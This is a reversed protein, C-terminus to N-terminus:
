PSLDRCPQTSNPAQQMKILIKWTFGSLMVPSAMQASVVITASDPNWTSGRCESTEPWFRLFVLGWLLVVSDICFCIKLFLAQGLSRGGYGNKVPIYTILMKKSTLLQWMSLVSFITLPLLHNIWSTHVGLTLIFESLLIRRFSM